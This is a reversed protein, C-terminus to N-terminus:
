WSPKDSSNKEAAKIRKDAQDRNFAALRAQYASSGQGGQSRSSAMDAQRDIYAKTPTAHDVEKLADGVLSKESANLGKDVMSNVIRSVIERKAGMADEISKESEDLAGESLIDEKALAKTNILAEALVAMCRNNANSLLTDVSGPEFNGNEKIELTRISAM